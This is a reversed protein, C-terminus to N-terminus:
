GGGVLMMFLLEDDKKLKMGLDHVYRDGKKIRSVFKNLKKRGWEM